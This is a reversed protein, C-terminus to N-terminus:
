RALAALTLFLHATEPHVFDSHAGQPLWFRGRRFHATANVNVIRQNLEDRTYGKVVPHLYCTKVKDAPVRAGVHGIGPAWEAMRHWFGTAHDAKSYTLVIPCNIPAATLLPSFRTAFADPKSAMQLILVSDVTHPFDDNGWDWALTPPRDPGADQIAQCLFRGGFSHGITHLYQGGATRLTGPGHQPPRRETNLYGLLQSIVEAAHGETTMKHARNRMRRYRGNSPWRLVVNYSHYAPIQQYYDPSAEYLGHIERLLGNATSEARAKSTMWGHVFVNIDTAEDPIALRRKLFEPVAPTPMAKERVIDFLRGKRDLDLTVTTMSSTKM